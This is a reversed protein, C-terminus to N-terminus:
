LEKEGSIVDQHEEKNSQNRNRELSKSQLYNKHKNHHIETLQKNINSDNKDIQKSNKEKISTKKEHIEINQLVKASLTNKM